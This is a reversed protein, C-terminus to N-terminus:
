TPQNSASQDAHQDTSTEDDFPFTMQQNLYSETIRQIEGFVEYPAQSYKMRRHIGQPTKQVLKQIEQLAEMSATVPQATAPEDDIPIQGNVFCLGTFGNEIFGVADYKSWIPTGVPISRV